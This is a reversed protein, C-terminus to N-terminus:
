AAATAGARYWPPLPCSCSYTFMDWLFARHAVLFLEHGMPCKALWGDAGPAPAPLAKGSGGNLEAPGAGRSGGPRLPGSLYPVM